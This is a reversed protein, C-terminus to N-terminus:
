AGATRKVDPVQYVCAFLGIKAINCPAARYVSMVWKIYGLTTVMATYASLM